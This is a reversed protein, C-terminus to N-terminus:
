WCHLLTGTRWEQWCKNNDMKKMIAIRSSTFHYGIFNLVLFLSVPSFCIFFIDGENKVASYQLLPNVSFGIPRSLSCESNALSVWGPVSLMPCGVRRVEGRGCVCWAAVTCSLAHCLLSFTSKRYPPSIVCFLSSPIVCDHGVGEWWDPREESGPCSHALSCSSTLTFSYLLSLVIERGLLTLPLLPPLM